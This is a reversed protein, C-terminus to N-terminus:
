EPHLAQALRETAAALRPGPVVFEDGTLLHVRGAKVAPIAGLRNWLAREGALDANLAAGYHLDVIADPGIRRIEESSLPVTARHIDALANTAGAIGIMDHHFGVGGVADLNRLSGPDHGFIMLVRPRPRGAVRARVAALRAEFTDAARGAEAELGLRAGLERMTRTVGAMDTNVYPFQAIGARDLQARLERQTGYVVVLDPRLALIRELSPDILGGVREVAAVEAPHDDFSSVGVVRPGAGIAFLMETASPVISVIRSPKVQAAPESVATALVCALAFRAAATRPRVTGTM